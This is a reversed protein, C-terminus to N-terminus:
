GTSGSPNRSLSATVPTRSSSSGPTWVLEAVSEVSAVSRWEEDAGACVLAPVDLTSLVERYDRV